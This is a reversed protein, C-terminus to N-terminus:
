SIFLGPGSPRGCEDRGCVGPQSQRDWLAISRLIALDIQPKIEAKKGMLIDNPILQGLATLMHARSVVPIM